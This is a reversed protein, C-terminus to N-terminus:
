QSGAILESNKKKQRERIAQLPRVDMAPIPLLPVPVPHRGYFDDMGNQDDKL